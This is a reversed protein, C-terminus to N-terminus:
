GHRPYRVRPGYGVYHGNMCAGHNLGFLAAFGRCPQTAADVLAVAGIGAVGGVAAAGAATVPLAAGGVTAGWWGESVGLGVVTGGVVGATAAAADRDYAPNAYYGAAQATPAMLAAAAALSLACLLKRM